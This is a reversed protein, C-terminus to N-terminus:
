GGIIEFSAWSAADSSKPDPSSLMDIQAQRLAETVQLGSRLAQYFRAFLKRGAQDNVQWLSGVVAPVGVSLFPRALGSLGEGLHSDGLVSSCASLVVLRSVPSPQDYLDRAYLVGSDQEPESPGLALFSASPEAPNVVAHGAFHVIDYTALGGLFRQKTAEAGLRVVAQPYLAAVRVAEKRAQPLRPLGQLVERDLDPDGLSLVSRLPLSSRRKGHTLIQVYLSASPSVALAYHEIFYRGAPDLLAAFPLNYLNGDPVLVVTGVGRLAPQLPGILIDFLARSDARWESGKEETIGRRLHEIRRDLAGPVILTSFSTISNSRVVWSHLQRDAIWFEILAVGPPIRESIEAASMAAPKEPGQDRFLQARGSEAYSLAEEGKGRGAQLQIMEQFIARSGALYWARLDRQSTAERQQAIARVAEKYDAEALDLRGLAAQARAREALLFALQRQYRTSRYIEITKSLLDVAKRPAEARYLQGEVALNHSLLSVRDGEDSIEALWRRAQFLDQRARRIRGARIEILAKRRLGYCWAAANNSGKLGDLAEQQFALAALPKGLSLATLGSGELVVQRRPPDRLDRLSRLASLHYPLAGRFDGSSWLSEAILASLISRNEAEGLEDFIRFARRYAALSETPRAQISHILGTIWLSRGVLSSYSQSTERLCNLRSLSRAYDFRQMEYVAFRFSAWGAFPSKAQALQRGADQFRDRALALQRDQYLRLGEKYLRHGKALGSSRASKELISKEIVVVADSIMRDGNRKRLANGIARAVGLKSRARETKAELWAEAWEGLLVDEAYERSAQPFEAVLRGVVLADARAAAQDIKRRTTEWRQVAAGPAPLLALRERAETVWGSGSDIELYQNWALRSRTYLHLSEQILARNFLAEPLRPDIEVAREASELAKILSGPQQNERADALYAVSLDSLLGADTPAAAVAREFEEVAQRTRGGILKALALTAIDQPSTGAADAEINRLLIRLSKSVPPRSLNFPAHPFGALRGELSRTQGLAAALASRVAARRSAENQRPPHASGTLLILSCLAALLVTSRRSM